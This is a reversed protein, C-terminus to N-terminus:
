LRHGHRAPFNLIAPAYQGGLLAARLSGLDRVFNKLFDDNRPGTYHLVRAKNEVLSIVAWEDFVTGGYRSNM